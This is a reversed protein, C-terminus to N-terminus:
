SAERTPLLRIDSSERKVLENRVRTSLVTPIILGRATLFNAERMMLFLNTRLKQITSEKLDALEPHWLAKGRVFAEFHEVTLDPAMLLFRERLVDEAFDAIFKYRRCAAVWMLQAREESLGDLLIEREAPTLEHVRQVLERALRKASAVTRSQLANDAVLADIVVAWDQLRDFLRVAEPASQTFLGGATFSLRYRASGESM